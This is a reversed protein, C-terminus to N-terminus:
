VYRCRESRKATIRAGVIRLQHIILSENPFHGPSSEEVYYVMMATFCPMVVALEIWRVKHEVTLPTSYGWMNDNCLAMPVGCSKPNRREMTVRCNYCVPFQCSECIIHHAHEGGCHKVDEPCCLALFREHGNHLVFERKWEWDAPDSLFAAHAFPGEGALHNGGYRRRFTSLSLNLDRSAMPLQRM